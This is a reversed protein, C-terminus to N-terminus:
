SLHDEFGGFACDWRQALVQVWGDLLLIFLLLFPLEESQSRFLEPVTLALAALHSLSRLGAPFGARASLNTGKASQVCTVFGFLIIFILLRVSRTVNDSM